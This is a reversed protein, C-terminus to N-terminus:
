NKRPSLSVASHDVAHMSSGLSTVVQRQAVGSSEIHDGEATGYLLSQGHELDAEPVAMKQRKAKRDQGSTSGIGGESVGGQQADTTASLGADRQAVPSVTGPVGEGAVISPLVLATGSVVARGAFGRETQKGSAGGPQIASLGAAGDSILHHQDTMCHDHELETSASASAGSDALFGEVHQAPASEGRLAVLGATAPPYPSPAVQSGAAAAAPLPPVAVDALSQLQRPAPPIAPVPALTPVAHIGADAPVAQKAIAPDSMTVPQAEAMNPGQPAALPVVVEAHPPVSQEATVAASNTVPKAEAKTLSQPALPVLVGAHALAEADAEPNLRLGETLPKVQSCVVVSSNNQICIPHIGAM